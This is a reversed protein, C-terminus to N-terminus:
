FEFIVNETSIDAINRFYHLIQKQWIIQTTDAYMAIYLLISYKGSWELAGM